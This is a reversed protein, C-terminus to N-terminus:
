LQFELVKAMEHMSLLGEKQSLLLCHGVGVGFARRLAPHGPWAVWVGGIGGTSVVSPRCDWLM